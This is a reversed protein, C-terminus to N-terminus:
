LDSEDIVEGDFIDFTAGQRWANPAFGAKRSLHGLTTELDWGNDTAVQPLFVAQRGDKHFVIGHKGLIIDKVGAVVRSPGLCTIELLLEPLEGMSVPHFRPDAFAANLANHRVSEVVPLRAELDGMCGRLKDGQRLTVFSSGFEWLNLPLDPPLALERNNLHERITSRAIDILLRKEVTSLTSM